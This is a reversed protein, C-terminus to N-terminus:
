QRGREMQMKINYINDQKQGTQQKIVPSHLQRDMTLDDFTKYTM